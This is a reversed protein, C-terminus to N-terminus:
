HILRSEKISEILSYIIKRIMTTNNTCWFKDDDFVIITIKPKEGLTDNLSYLVFLLLKPLFIYHARIVM